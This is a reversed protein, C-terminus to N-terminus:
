QSISLLYNYLPENGLAQAMILATAGLKNKAHVDAGYQILLQAIPVADNRMALLQLPKMGNEGGDNPNAGHELLFAVMEPSRRMVYYQLLTNGGPLMVDLKAGLTYLMELKDKSEVIAVVPLIEKGVQNPDAGAEVMKKLTERPFNNRLAIGLLGGSVRSSYSINKLDLGNKLMLLVVDSWGENLALLIMPTGVRSIYNPDAGANLAKIAADKNKILLARNLSENVNGFLRNWLSVKPREAQVNLCAGILAIAILLKKM